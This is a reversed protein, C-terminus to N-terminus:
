AAEQRGDPGEETLIADSLSKLAIRAAQRYDSLTVSNPRGVQAALRKAGQFVEDAFLSKWAVLAKAAEVDIRVQKSANM